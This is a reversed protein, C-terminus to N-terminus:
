RGRFAPPRREAFAARGEAYDESQAIMPQIDEETALAEEFGQRAAARFMRKARTLALTPGSALDRAFAAADDAVSHDPLTRLALGMTAADTGSLFRGTYILEKAQQVGTYQALLFPSAGDPALGLNRFAFRFRANESAIVFDCALALSWAVGACVGRVAAIAPKDCLAVARVMQHVARMRGISGSVGGGGMEGIDAGASFEGGSGTLVVARIEDDNAIRAFAAVLGERMSQDIANKKEPRDLTVTAVGRDTEIRLSM